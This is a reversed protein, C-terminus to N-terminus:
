QGKFHIMDGVEFKPRKFLVTVRYLEKSTERSVSFLKASIKIVGGFKRQMAVALKKAFSTDSLYLDIGNKIHVQKSLFAKSHNIRGEAYDLVKDHVNRLQLIAEFYQPNKEKISSKEKM